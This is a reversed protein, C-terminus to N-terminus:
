PVNYVEKYGFLAITIAIVEVCNFSMLNFNTKKERRFFYKEPQSLIRRPTRFPRHHLRVDTRM